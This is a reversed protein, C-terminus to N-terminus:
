DALTEVPPAVSEGPRIPPRNSAPPPVRGGNALVVPGGARVNNKAMGRSVSYGTAALLWWKLLEVNVAYNVVGDVITLGAVLVAFLGVCVIWFETTKYGTKM